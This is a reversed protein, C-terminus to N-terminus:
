TELPKEPEEKEKLRFHRKRLEELEDKLRPLIEKEIKERAAEGARKIKESLLGLEKEFEKYAEGQPLRKVQESFEKFQKKLEEFKEEFNDWSRDFATSYKGSGSVTTGDKLPTGGKKVQVMEIAKKTKDTPDGVIFFRAHETVAKAFERKIEVQVTYSGSETYRLGTVRGIHNKEFIVRDNVQLGLVKDFTIQLNLGKDECGSVVLFLALVAMPIQVMIYERM